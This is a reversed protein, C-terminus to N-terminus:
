DLLPGGPVTFYGESKFMKVVASDSVLTKSESLYDYWLHVYITDVIEPIVVDPYEISRLTAHYITDREVPSCLIHKDLGGFELVTKNLSFSRAFEGRFAKDDSESETNIEVTYTSDTPRKKSAVVVDVFIDIVMRNTWVSIVHSVEDKGVKTIFRKHYVRSCGSAILLFFMLTFIGKFSM